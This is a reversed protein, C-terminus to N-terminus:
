GRIYNTNYKVIICPVHWFSILCNIDYIYLLFSCNLFLDFDFDSKNFLIIVLISYDQM